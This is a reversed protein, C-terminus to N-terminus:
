KGTMVGLLFEEHTTSVLERTKEAAPRDDLSLALALDSLQKELGRTKLEGRKYQKALKSPRKGTSRLSELSLAAAQAVEDLSKLLETRSGGYKILDRALKTQQDAHDLAREFRRLPDPEQRVEPLGGALPAAPVLFLAALLSRRMM